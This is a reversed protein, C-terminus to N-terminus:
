PKTEHSGECVPESRTSVVVTAADELKLTARLRDLLSSPTFAALLPETVLPDVM